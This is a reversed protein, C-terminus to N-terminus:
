IPRERRVESAAKDERLGLFTPHRLRGESTWETYGVQAVLSPKVFHAGKKDGTALPECFPSKEVELKDLKKKIKILLADNFGTGVRGAYHLKKNEYYGLLLSGFADRSGGPDTYGAIVFEEQMNCKIKLWDKGRGGTYPANKKKAIIGELKKKCAEAFRAKGDGESHYSYQIKAKKQKQFKDLVHSLIRKRAILPAGSLDFGDVYILDFAFYTYVNRPGDGFSKQLLSFSSNGEKNLTVMEGDLILSKVGLSNVIEAIEPFRDTWDKGNRSVLVVSSKDKVALIRYGDFKTEFIWEDSTPVAEVLTALEAAILNKSLSATKAYGEKVLTKLVDKLQDSSNKM